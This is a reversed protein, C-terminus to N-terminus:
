GQWYWLGIAAAAAPVLVTTGVIIGARKFAATTLKGFMANFEAPANGKPYKQPPMEKDLFPCLQEFGFGDELRCILM